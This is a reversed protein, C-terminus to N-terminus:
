EEEDDAIQAINALTASLKIEKSDKNPTDNKDANKVVGKGKCEKPKHCVWSEHNPCWWYQKNNVFKTPAEDKSPKRMMWDPKVNKGKAKGKGPTKAKGTQGAKEKDKPKKPASRLKVVEAELAILKEKNETPVNWENQGVRTVYKNQALNM